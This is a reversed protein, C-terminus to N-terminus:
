WVRQARQPRFCGGSALLFALLLSRASFPYFVFTMAVFPRKGARDALWAVPIYVLMAVVMEVTLLIGFQFASIPNMVTKMAWIAMFM